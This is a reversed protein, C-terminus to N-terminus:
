TDAARIRAQPDKWVRQLVIVLDDFVFSARHQEDVLFYGLRERIRRDVDLLLGVASMEHDPSLWVVVDCGVSSPQCMFVNASNTAISAGAIKTAAASAWVCTGGGALRLEGGGPPVVGAGFRRGGTSPRMSFTAGDLLAIVRLSPVFSTVGTPATS